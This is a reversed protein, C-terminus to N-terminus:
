HKVFMSKENLGGGRLVLVYTGPMLGSVDITHRNLGATLSLQKTHVLAGSMNFIKIEGNGAGAATFELEMNKSVPNPFLRFTKGVTKEPVAQKATAQESLPILKRLRITQAFGHELVFSATLTTAQSSVTANSPNDIVEWQGNLVLTVTRPQTRWYYDYATETKINMDPSNVTLTLEDGQERIGAMCVASVSKIHGTNVATNAQFFVYATLSAPLYKVVHMAGNQKLIEYVTGGALVPVTAEMAAPTTGPVVVYHYQSDAPNVGHNMWAKSAYASDYATPLSLNTANEKPTTQKVRVVQVTFNGPPIYYGTTQPSLLWLGATQTDFTQDYAADTVPTTTNVYIPPHAPNVVTSNVHQFLNTAVNGLGNIASISSGLCVLITDFAFVSKRAKLRSASYNVSAKEDFNFGFVGEQGLSLSGAFNNNQFEMATGNVTPRLKVFDPFHVTTTGPIVNWDWGKGAAIYGTAALTGGYLVEVAGYSQYRGYRNESTYIEAGFIKSTFGRMVAVWNRKRQIGEAGYNYQHFGDVPVAAVPFKNTGTVHNYIGGMVQHAATNTLDGGLEVFREFQLLSVPLNTPFPNRGSSAHSFIIGKSSSTLLYKMGISMNDYAPQSIRYGTGRLQYCLDAWRGWAGMYSTHHSGHHYGTGDPKMGDRGGIGPVTNREMFRKVLKMDRVAQNDDPEALALEFLFPARINLYDVSYGETYMAGYTVSFENAWKLMAVVEARMAAPYYPLAELFGVPFTRAPSYDNTQLIIRGGEALGQSLLYETFLVLKAEADTDGNHEAARALVGCHKSLNLLTATTYIDPIGNGRISGDTNYSINCGLVFNKAATVETATPVPRVRPFRPRLVALDAIETASAATAPIDPGAKWNELINLYPANTVHKRFYAYDPWMHPGPIRVETNGIFTAEDIHITCSTGSSVPKFIIKMENLLFPAAAVGGTYDYYYSRHYERWGKFNLVMKGQRQVTGNEDAFQFILTDESVVPSHIFIRASAAAATNVEASPIALDIAKLYDGSEAHWILAQGKKVHQSSLALATTSSTEWYSPLTGDFSEFRQQSFVEGGTALVVFAMLLKKKMATHKTLHIAYFMGNGAGPWLIPGAYSHM